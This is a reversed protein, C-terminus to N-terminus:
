RAKTQRWVIPADGTWRRFARTFNGPESYGLADAIEAISVTQRGLMEQALERRIGDLLSEFSVSHMQLRRFLTIRHMGLMDAVVDVNCRGGELLTRILESVQDAFNLGLLSEMESLRSRFYSNLAPDQQDQRSVDLIKADFALADRAQGFEPMLGFCKRWAAKDIPTARSFQIQAPRWAKGAIIALHRDFVTLYSTRVLDKGPFNEPISVTLVAVGRVEVLGLLVGAYFVKRFRLLAAVAERVTPSTAVLLRLPGTNQMRAMAGVLLPLEDCSTHAVARQLLEGCLAIPVPHLPRAFASPALGYGQMFGWGDFGLQDIVVPVNALTGIPVTSGGKGSNRAM